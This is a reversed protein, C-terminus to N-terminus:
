ECSLFDQYAEHCVKCGCEGHCDVKCSDLCTCGELRYLANKSNIKIEYKFLFLDMNTNNNIFRVTYADIQSSYNIIHGIAGKALCIKGLPGLSILEHDKLLIVEDNIKM